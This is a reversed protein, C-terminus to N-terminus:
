EKTREAKWSVTEWRAEVENADVTEGGGADRRWRVEMKSGARMRRLDTERRRRAAAKMLPGRM